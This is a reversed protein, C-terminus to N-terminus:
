TTVSGSHCKWCAQHMFLGPLVDLTGFRYADFRGPKERLFLSNTVPQFDPLLLYDLMDRNARQLRAIVTLDAPISRDMVISWYDARDPRQRCPALYVSVTFQGNVRMLRGPKLDEVTVGSTQLHSRIEACLDHRRAKLVRGMTQDTFIRATQYGILTYARNLSKFRKQYTSAGPSAEDANILVASLKGARLLLERLRDLLEQDSMFESRHQVIERARAFTATPVIAEFADDRRIWMSAPNKKPEEGIKRTRRNFVNAGIYKPNILLQYVSNRNWTRGLDTSIGRENLIGAIEGPSKLDVTFLDFIERVASVENEPGPVLVVRDTQIAKRDGAQLVGKANGLHDVLLRRLGFGPHGGQRFGLEILHSQGAFVKGSLERSYEAAMSRKITKLLTSYITGDNDFPETCYHVRVHARKILARMSM